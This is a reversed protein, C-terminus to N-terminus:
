LVLREVVCERGGYGVGVGDILWGVWEFAILVLLGNYWCELVRWHCTCDLWEFAMLIVIAGANWCKGICCYCTYM